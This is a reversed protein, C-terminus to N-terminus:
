PTAAIAAMGHVVHGRARLARVAEAATAGTTVVDDVVIVEGRGPLRAAAVFAGALNQARERAGLSKQTVTRASRSLGGVVTADVGAEDRLLTAAASAVEAVLDAGRRLRAGRTTPVTVLRIMSGPECTVIAAALHHALFATLHAGSSGQGDAKWRAIIRRLVGEYHQGVVVRAGVTVRTSVSMPLPRTADCCSRCVSTAAACCGPCEAGLLLDAAALWSDM